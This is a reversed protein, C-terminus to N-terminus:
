SVLAGVSLAPCLDAEDCNFLPLALVLTIHLSVLSVSLHLFERFLAANLHLLNSKIPSECDLQAANNTRYDVTTDKHIQINIYSFVKLENVSAKQIKGRRDM